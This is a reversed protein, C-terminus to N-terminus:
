QQRILEKITELDGEHDVDNLEQLLLYKLGLEDADKLTEALVAPTSWVKNQFLAEHLSSMGLLYYGGDTAPGIILDNKDLLDFAQQIIQGDLEYCDSGIICVKNYGDAFGKQFANLMKEGLEKGKQLTKQYTENEWIDQTEVYDSYYVVKTVPLKETIQRTRNLLLQYIELAKVDGITSALRTKVKGLTPNKLFIILLHKNM